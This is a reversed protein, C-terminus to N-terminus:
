TVNNKIEIAKKTVIHANPAINPTDELENVNYWAWWVIEEVWENYWLEWEYTEVIYHMLLVLRWYKEGEWNKQEILAWDVLPINNYPKTVKAWTRNLTRQIANDEVKNLNIRLKGDVDKFIIESFNTELPSWGTFQHQLKGNKNTTVLYVKTNDQNLFVHGSSYTRVIELWQYSDHDIIESLPTEYMTGDLRKVVVMDVWNKSRVTCLIGADCLTNPDFNPISGVKLDRKTKM